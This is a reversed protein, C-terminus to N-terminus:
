NLEILNVVMVEGVIVWWDDCGGGCYGMVWGGDCDGGCFGNGGDDCGVGYYGDGVLIM